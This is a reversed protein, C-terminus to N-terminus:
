ANKQRRNKVQQMTAHYQNVYDDGMTARLQQEVEPNELLTQYDFLQQETSVPPQRYLNTGKNISGLRNFIRNTRENLKNTIRDWRNLKM